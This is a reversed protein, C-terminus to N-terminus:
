LFMQKLDDSQTAILSTADNLDGVPTGDIKTLASLDFGDVTCGLPRLLNAWALAAKKGAPDMHPVIRIRRNAFLPAADPHLKKVSAGLMAVPTWPTATRQTFACFYHAAVFDGSGEVLMIPHAGATLGLPWNKQSGKITHTKREVLAGWQPYHKGDMRRAEALLRTEDLVIWSPFGAVDAFALFGAKSMALVTEPPVARLKSVTACEDYSGKHLPPLIL